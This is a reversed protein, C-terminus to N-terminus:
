NCPASPADLLGFSAPGARRLTDAIFHTYESAWPSLTNAPVNM